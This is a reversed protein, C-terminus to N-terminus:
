KYAIHKILAEINCKKNNLMEYYCKHNKTNKRKEFFYRNHYAVDTRRDDTSIIEKRLLKIDLQGSHENPPLAHGFPTIEQFELQM